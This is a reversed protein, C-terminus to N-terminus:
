YIKSSFAARNKPRSVKKIIVILLVASGALIIIIMFPNGSSKQPSNRDYINDLNQQQYEKSFQLDSDVNPDIYNSDKVYGQSELEAVRAEMQAYRADEFYNRYPSIEHWHHFWFLDSARTLFWLDWIGVYASGYSLPGGFLGRNVNIIVPRTGYTNIRQNRTRMAYDFDMKSGTNYSKKMSSDYVKKQEDNLSQKYTTYNRQSEAKKFADEMQSKKVSNSATGGTTTSKTSGTNRQSGTSTSSGTYGSSNTSKGPISRSKNTSGISGKKSSSSGKYGSSSKRSISSSRSRGSSKFGKAYFVGVNSVVFVLILLIAFIRKKM